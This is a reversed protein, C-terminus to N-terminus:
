AHGQAVSVERLQRRHSDLEAQAAQEVFRLRGEGRLQGKRAVQVERELERVHEVERAVRARARESEHWIAETGIERFERVASEALGREQEVLNMAQRQVGQEWVLENRLLEDQEQQVGIPDILERSGRRRTPGYPVVGRDPNPALSQSDVLGQTAAEVARREHVAIEMAVPGGPVIQFQM